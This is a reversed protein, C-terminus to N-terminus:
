LRCTIRDQDKLEPEIKEDPHKQKMHRALSKVMDFAKTCYQCKIKDGQEKPSAKKYVIKCVKKPTTYLKDKAPRKTGRKEGYKKDEQVDVKRRSNWGGKLKHVLAELHQEMEQVRKKEKPYLGSEHLFITFHYSLNYVELEVSGPNIFGEDFNDVKKFKNLKTLNNQM